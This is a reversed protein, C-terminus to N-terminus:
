SHTPQCKNFIVLQNNLAFHKTRKTILRGVKDGSPNGGMCGIRSNM